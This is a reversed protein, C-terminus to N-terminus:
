GEAEGVDLGIARIHPGIAVYAVGGAVAADATDDGVRGVQSASTPCTTPSPQQASRTPVFFARTSAGLAALALTLVIALPRPTM